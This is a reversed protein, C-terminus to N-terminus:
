GTVTIDGEIVDGNGDIASVAFTFETKAVSVVGVTGPEPEFSGDAGVQLVFTEDEPGTMQVESGPELGSGNFTVGGSTSACVEGVDNSVCAAESDSGCGSLVLMAISGLM